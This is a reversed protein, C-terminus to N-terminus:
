VVSKRDTLALNTDTTLVNVNNGNAYRYAMSNEGFVMKITRLPGGNLMPDNAGGAPTFNTGNAKVRTFSNRFSQSYPWSMGLSRSQFQKKIIKSSSLSANAIATTDPGTFWQSNAPSYTWAGTNTKTSDPNAESVPDNQDLVIGSDQINIHVM